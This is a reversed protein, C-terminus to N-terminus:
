IVFIGTCAEFHPNVSKGLFESVFDEHLSLGFNYSWHDNDRRDFRLEPCWVWPTRSTLKWGFKPCKGAIGECLLFYNWVFGISTM